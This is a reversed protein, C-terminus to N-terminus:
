RWSSGSPKSAASATCFTCGPPGPAPISAPPSSAPAARTCWGARTYITLGTGAPQELTLTGNAPNPYAVPQSPAMRSQPSCVPRGNVYTQGINVYWSATKLGDCENQFQVQVYVSGSEPMQLELNTSTTGNGVSAGGSVSWQFNTNQGRTAQTTALLMLSTYPCVTGGAPTYDTSSIGGEGSGTLLQVFLPNSAQCSANIARVQLMGTTAAFTAPAHLQLEPAATVYPSTATPNGVVTFGAPFEWSYGTAGAVAAFRFLPQDNACVAFNNGSGIAPSTFATPTAVQPNVQVVIPPATVTASVGNRTYTAQLNITGTGGGPRLFVGPTATNLCCFSNVIGSVAFQYNGFSGGAPLTGAGPRVNQLNQGCFLSINGGQPTQDSIIRLPPVPRTVPQVFPQTRSVNQGALLYSNCFTDLARVSISGAGAPSPIVRVSNTNTRATTGSFGEFQWGAPITWEYSGAFDTRNTAAPYPLRVQPVSLTVVTNDGFPIEGNFVAGNLSIPGVSTTALSRTVVPLPASANVAPNSCNRTQVTLSPPNSDSTPLDDWVVQIVLPGDVTTQNTQYQRGGKITWIASCGNTGVGQTQPQVSYLIPVGTCAPLGNFPDNIKITSQQAQSVLPFLCAITLLFSFLTKM